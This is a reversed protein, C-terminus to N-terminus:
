KAAVKANIKSLCRSPFFKVSFVSFNSLPLVSCGESAIRVVDLFSVPDYEHITLFLMPAAVDRFKTKRFTVQLDVTKHFM